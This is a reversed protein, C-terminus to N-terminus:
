FFVTVLIYFGVWLFITKPMSWFNPKQTPTRNQVTKIKSIQVSLFKRKPFSVFMSHSFKHRLDMQHPLSRKWFQMTTKVKTVWKGSWYFWSSYTPKQTCSHVYDNLHIQQFSHYAEQLWASDWKDKFSMWYEIFSNMILSYKLLRIKTKGVHM